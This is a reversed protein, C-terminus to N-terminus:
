IIWFYVTGPFLIGKDIYSELVDPPSFEEEVAGEQYRPCDTKHGAKWHTTQHQRSCYHVKRCQSCQQSAAVGCVQCLHQGFKGPLPEYQKDPETADYDPPTAQYFRNEKALQSRFCRVENACETQRGCAFVLLTRHFASPKADIPAYIQLVFRMTQKCRSCTVQEADIVPALSLFAPRGGVKSPFYKSTFKWSPALPELFALDIDRM